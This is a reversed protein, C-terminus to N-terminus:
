KGVLGSLIVGLDWLQHSLHQATAAAQEVNLVAAQRRVELADDLLGAATDIAIVMAEAKRRLTYLGASFNSLSSRREDPGEADVANLAEVVWQWDRVLLQDEPEGGDEGIRDGTTRDMIVYCHDGVEDTHHDIYFRQSMDARQAEFEETSMGM